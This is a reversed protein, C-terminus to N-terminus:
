FSVVYKQGSVLTTELRTVLGLMIPRACRVYSLPLIPVM